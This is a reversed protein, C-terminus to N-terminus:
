KADLWRERGALRWRRVIRWGARDGPKLPGYEDSSGCNRVDASSEDAVDPAARDPVPEVTWRKTAGPDCHLVYEEVRRHARKEAPGHPPPEGPDAPHRRWSADKATRSPLDDGPADHEPDRHEEHVEDRQDSELRCARHWPRRECPVRHRAPGEQAIEERI